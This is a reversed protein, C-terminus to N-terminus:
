YDYGLEESSPIGSYDNYYMYCIRLSSLGQQYTRAITYIYTELEALRISLKPNKKKNNVKYSDPNFRIFLICVNPQSFDQHIQFMRKYECEENYNRHQYEDVEIIIYYLGMNLIIDPRKRSCSEPIVKDNSMFVTPFKSKIFESVDTEVRKTNINCYSCLKNKDLLMDLGCSTCKEEFLHIDSNRKHREYRKPPYSNTDNYLAVDYCNKEKCSKIKIAKYLKAHRSCYKRRENVFGHCALLECNPHQCRKDEVNIMNNLKHDKCFIGKKETPYNYISRTECNKYQCYNGSKDIM